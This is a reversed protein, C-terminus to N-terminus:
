QRRVWRGRGTINLDAVEIIEIANERDLIHTGELFIMRTKSTFYLKIDSLYHSLSHCDSVIPCDKGNHASVYYHRDEALSLSALALLLALIFATMAMTMRCRLLVSSYVHILLHSVTLEDPSALIYIFAATSEPFQTVYNKSLLKRSCAHM